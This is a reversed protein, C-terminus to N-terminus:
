ERRQKKVYELNVPKPARETQDDSEVKGMQKRSAFKIAAIEKTCNTLFLHWCHKVLDIPM